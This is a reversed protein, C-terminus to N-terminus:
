YELYRETVDYRDTTLISVSQPFDTSYSHGNFSYYVHCGYVTREYYNQNGVIIWRCELDALSDSPGIIYKGNVYLRYEDVSEFYPKVDKFVGNYWGYVGENYEKGYKHVVTYGDYEITETTLTDSKSEIHNDSGVNFSGSVKETESSKSIIQDTSPHYNVIDFLNTLEFLSTSTNTINRLLEPNQEFFKTEETYHNDVPEMYQAIYATYISLFEEASYTEVYKKIFEETIIWTGNWQKDYKSSCLGLNYLTDDSYDSWDMLYKSKFSRNEYEEQSFINHVIECNKDTSSPVEPKSNISYVVKYTIFIALCMVAIGIIWWLAKRKGNVTKEDKLNDM